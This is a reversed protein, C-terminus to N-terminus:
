FEKDFLAMIRDYADKDSVAATGNAVCEALTTEGVIVGIVSDYPLAVETTSAVTKGEETAGICNRISMTWSEGTDPYTFTLGEVIGEAKEPDIHTRMIDFILSSPAAVLKDRTPNGLFTSGSTDTKGEIEYAQSICFSRTISSHSVRGMKRLADAKIAIAAEHTPNNTLVYTALKAAWAYQNDDLAAQAAATVADDGGLAAVLKGYEFEKTVPHLEIADIGYWGILGSYMGRIYHEVEGYCPTTFVSAQVISAPMKVAKVCEDPTYNMNIFRISQDMVFQVADRFYTLERLVNEKGRVVFLASAIFNEAGISRLVDIDPLFKEPDRYKEGRLTYMNQFSPMVHNSYLTDYEKCYVSLSCPSDAIGPYFQFHLGDLEMETMHVDGPIFTNPEMFGYTEDRSVTGVIGADEGETPCMASYQYSSRHSYTPSIAGITRSLTEMMDSHAIIPINDPNGEPVYVSTGFAYHDHSYIIASVPKDVVSRFMEKDKEADEICGSTDILIMGTKGEFMVVNCLGHTHSVYVGDCVKELAETPFKALFDMTYQTTTQGKPGTAVVLEQGYYDTDGGMFTSDAVAQAREEQNMPAVLKSADGASQAAGTSALEGSAAESSVCGAMGGLTAAGAVLAGKLFNRRNLSTVISM